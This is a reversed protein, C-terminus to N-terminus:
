SAHKDASDSEEDSEMMPDMHISHASQPHSSSSSTVGVEIEGGVTQRSHGNQSPPELSTYTLGHDVSTTIEEHHLGPHLLQSHDYDGADSQPGTQMDHGHHYTSTLSDMESPQSLVVVSSGVRSSDALQDDGLVEEAGLIDHTMGLTENEGEAPQTTVTVVHDLGQPFVVSDANQLDQYQVNDDQSSCLVLIDSPPDVKGALEVETQGEGEVLAPVGGVCVGAQMAQKAQELKHRNMHVRCSGSQSFSKGCIECSFPKAGSHTLNHKHLSSYEAFRRGCQECVFPKEGTHVRSHNKLNGATTFSKGCDDAMCLFPKEGTHTRSHVQLSQATMFRKGCEPYACIFRRENTHTLQHYKFHAPWAFTRGCGKVGCVFLKPENPRPEIIAIQKRRRSTSKETNKGAAAQKEQLRDCNNGKEKKSLEEEKEEQASLQRVIQDQTDSILNAQALTHLNCLQISSLPSPCSMGSAPNLLVSAEVIGRPSNTTLMIIPAPMSAQLSQNVVSNGSDDASLSTVVAAGAESSQPFGVSKVTVATESKSAMQNQTEADNGVPAVSYLKKPYDQPEM